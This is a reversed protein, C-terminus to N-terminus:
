CESLDVQKKIILMNCDKINIFGDAISDYRDDHMIAIILKDKKIKQIYDKLALIAEEELNSTPEDLLYINKEQGLLRLLAIKQTEGSSLNLPDPVVQKQLDPLNFLTMLDDDIKKGFNINEDVTGAFVFLPYFLIGIDNRYKRNIKFDSDRLLTPDMMQSLLKFFTSKGSGNPGKFVFFGKEPLELDLKYLKKGDIQYMNATGKLFGKDESFINDFSEEAKSDTDLFELLRKIYPISEQWKTLLVVLQGLPEYIFTMLSSIFYIQSFRLNNDKIIMAAILLIVIPTLNIIVTPMEYAIKQWFINKAKKDRLSDMSENFDSVFYDDKGSLAISEKNMCYNKIKSIAFDNEKAFDTSTEELKKAGYRTVIIFPLFMVLSYLTVKFSTIFNIILMALITILLGIGVGIVGIISVAAKNADVLYHNIMKGKDLKEYDPIFMSTSKKFISNVIHNYNKLTLKSILYNSFINTIVMQVFIVALVFLIMMMPSLNEITGEAYSILIKNFYMTAIFGMSGILYSVSAGIIYPLVSIRKDRLIKFM